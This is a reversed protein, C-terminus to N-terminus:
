RVENQILISAMIIALLVFAADALLARSILQLSKGAAHTNGLVQQSANSFVILRNLAGILIVSGAIALKVALIRGYNTGTFADLDPLQLTSNYLGTALAFALAVASLRSLRLTVIWILSQHWRLLPFLLLASIIISGGWASTSLVHIWDNLEAISFDGQDSAHSSASHTFALILMGALMSATWRGSPLHTLYATCSIWLLLLTLLHVSWILGFHTKSLVLPLDAVVRPLSGNDMEATRVLLLLTAAVGLLLLCENLMRRWRAYLGPIEFAYVPALWIKAIVLGCFTFLAWFGLFNLVVHLSHLQIM